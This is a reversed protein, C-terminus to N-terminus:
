SRIFAISVSTHTAKMISSLSLPPDQPINNLIYLTM